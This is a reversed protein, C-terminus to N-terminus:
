EGSIKLSSAVDDGFASMTISTAKNLILRFNKIAEYNVGVLIGGGTAHHKRQDQPNFFRFGSLLGAVELHLDHHGLKPDFALKAIVDPHLNPASFTSEGLDFQSAYSNALAAPLTIEGAGASGGGYQEAAEL